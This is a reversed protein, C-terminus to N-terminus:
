LSLLWRELEVLIGDLSSEEWPHSSGLTWLCIGVCWLFRVYDNAIAQAWQETPGTGDFRGTGVEDRAAEGFVLFPRDEEPVAAYFYEARDVWWQLGSGLTGPATGPESGTHLIVIHGHAKAYKLAQAMTSWDVPDPNGVSFACIGVKRGVNDAAAMVGMWFENYGKQYTPENTPQFYSRPDLGAIQSLKGMMWNYGIWYDVGPNQTLTPVDSTIGDHRYILRTVLSVAGNALKMNGTVVLSSLPRGAAKLRSCFGWLDNDSIGTDLVNFGILSLARRVPNPTPPVGPLIFSSAAWGTLSNYQVKIWDYRVGRLWKVISNESIVSIKTGEPIHVIDLGAPADRLRLYGIGPKVYASGIPFVTASLLRLLSIM